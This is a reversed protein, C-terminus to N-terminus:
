RSCRQSLNRRQPHARPKRPTRTAPHHYAIRRLCLASCRTQTSRRAPTRHGPQRPSGTVDPGDRSESMVHPPQSTWSAAGECVVNVARAVGFGSLSECPLDPSRLIVRLRVGSKAVKPQVPCIPRGSSFRCSIDQAMRIQPVPLGQEKRTKHSIHVTADSPTPEQHAARDKPIHCVSRVTISLKENSVLRPIRTM